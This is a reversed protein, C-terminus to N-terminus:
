SPIVLLRCMVSSHYCVDWLGLAFGRAMTRHDLANSVPSFLSHIFLM